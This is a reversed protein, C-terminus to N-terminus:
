SSTVSAHRIIELTEDNTSSTLSQYKKKLGLLESMHVSTFLFQGRGGELTEFHFTSLCKFGKMIMM